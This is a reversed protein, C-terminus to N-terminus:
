KQTNTYSNENKGCEGVVHRVFNSLLKNADPSEFFLEESAVGNPLYNTIHRARQLMDERTLEPHFQVSYIKKSYALGAVRCKEGQFILQAGNPIETLVDKHGYQVFLTDPINELIPLTNHQACVVVEFTGNKMQSIDHVVGAGKFRGILQHGFCIGLTPIDRSFIEALLPGLQRLVERSHKRNEHVEENGGDFDMDGSGGLIIGNIEALLELPKHWDVSTDLANTFLLEMDEASLQRHFIEQEIVIDAPTARFQVVIIRKM